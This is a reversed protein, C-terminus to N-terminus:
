RNLGEPIVLPYQMNFFIPTKELLTELQNHNIGFHQNRFM